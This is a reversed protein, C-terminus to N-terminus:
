KSEGAGTALTEVKRLWHSLIRDTIGYDGARGDPLSLGALGCFVAEGEASWFFVGTFPGSNGTLPIVFVLGANKGKGTNRYVHTFAWGAQATKIRAGLLPTKANWELLVTEASKRIGAEAASGTLYQLGMLLLFLAFFLAVTGSLKKLAASTDTTM